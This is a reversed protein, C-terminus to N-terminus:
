NNWNSTWLPISNGISTILKFIHNTPFKNMVFLLYKSQENKLRNFEYANKLNKEIFDLRAQSNKIIEQYLANLRNCDSAKMETGILSKKFIELNRYNKEINNNYETLTKLNDFFLDMKTDILSNDINKFLDSLSFSKKENANKSGDM